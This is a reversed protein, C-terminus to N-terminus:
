SVSGELFPYTFNKLFHNKNIKLITLAVSIITITMIIIISLIITKRMIIKFVRELRIQLRKESPCCHFCPM